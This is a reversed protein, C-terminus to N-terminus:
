HLRDWDDIRYDSMVARAGVRRSQKDNCICQVDRRHLVVEDWRKDHSFSAENDIVNGLELELTWRSVIVSDDIRDSINPNAECQLRSERTERRSFERLM